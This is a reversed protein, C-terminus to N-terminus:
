LEKSLKELTSTLELFKDDFEKKKSADFKKNKDLLTNWSMKKCIVERAVGQVYANEDTFFKDLSLLQKLDSSESLAKIVKEKKQQTFGTTDVSGITKFIDERQDKQGSILNTLAEICSSKIKEDKAERMVRRVLTVVGRKKNRIGRLLLLVKGRNEDPERSFKDLEKRCFDIVDEKSMARLSAEFVDLDDSKEAMNKAINKFSKDPGKSIAKLLVRLEGYGKNKSQAFLIKQGSATNGLKKIAAHQIGRNYKENLFGKLVDNDASNRITDAYNQNNIRNVDEVKKM